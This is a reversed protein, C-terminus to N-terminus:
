HVVTQWIYKVDKWFSWNQVYERNLRVKVPWITEWNYAEPDDQRALIEEEDRYKLTVPGTLGNSLPAAHKGLPQM